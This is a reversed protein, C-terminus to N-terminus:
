PYKQVRDRPAARAAPIGSRVLADRMTRGNPEDFDDPEAPRGVCHDMGRRDDQLRPHGRAGPHSIGQDLVPFRTMTGTGHRLLLGLRPRRDRDARGSRRVIHAASLRCSCGDPATASRTAASAPTRRPRRSSGGGRTPSAPALDLPAGVSCSSAAPLFCTRSSASVPSRDDEAAEAPAKSTAAPREAPPAEAPGAAAASRANAPCTNSRPDQATRRATRLRPDKHNAPGDRSGQARRRTALRPRAARRTEAPEQEGM